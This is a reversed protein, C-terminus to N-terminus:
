RQPAHDFARAIANWALKRELQADLPLPRVSAGDQRQIRKSIWTYRDSLGWTMVAITAPEDLVISLYEEYIAAVQRDRAAVDWPLKESVDMETVIIKLGLDAVEKVFQRLKKGQSGLPKSGLHSQMGLAQVPVGKSKLRELLKLVQTRKAENRPKNYHELQNENYVLLAKPDAEAAARFAIDIYDPGLLNLWPAKRLGDPRKDAVEIAENVVDWSHMKGAYHKAVTKIHDTLIKEANKSNVKEKFWAPLAKHWVLTHGRYLMDHDRAFDALEDARKFNFRDFRPRIGQWKLENEPVLIGCERAFASAFDPNSTLVQERAAAGYLLGKAAARERLSADGNVSFDRPKDRTLRDQDEQDDSGRRSKSAMAFMGAGASAGLSLVFARRGIRTMNHPM